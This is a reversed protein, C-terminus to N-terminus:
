APPTPAPALPAAQAIPEDKVEALLREEATPTWRWRLQFITAGGIGDTRLLTIFACTLLMVAPLSVRRARDSLRRTTFAWAVLAVCMLPVSLGYQLAGMAGGAISKELFPRTVVVALVMAVVTALRELWPARSLFLWWVLMVLVSVGAAILGIDAVAPLVFAATYGTVFVTAAAIGPWLRLPKRM